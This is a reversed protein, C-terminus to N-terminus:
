NPSFSDVRRRICIARTHGTDNNPASPCSGSTIAKRVSALRASSTAGSSQRRYPKVSASDLTATAAVAAPEMASSAAESATPLLVTFDWSLCTSAFVPTRPRASSIFRVPNRPPRNAQTLSTPRVIFNVAQTKPNEAKSGGAPAAPPAGRNPWTNM